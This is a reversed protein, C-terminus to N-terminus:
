QNKLWVPEDFIWDGWEGLDHDFAFGIGRVRYAWSKDKFEKEWVKHQKSISGGQFSDPFVSPFRARLAESVPSRDEASPHVQTLPAFQSLRALLMARSLETGVEKLTVLAQLYSDLALWYHQIPEVVLFVYM